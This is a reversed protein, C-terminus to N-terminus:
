KGDRGAKARAVAAVIRRPTMPTENLEAGLPKLADRIANAIAAPPSIAGGEGMGKMGYETFAAPTCMHGIKIDPVEVAGPMLYDAFTTALPQGDDSYPIEEYLATGIGQAIGGVIQGDVIMPNVITGADEVVAYDLIEVKGTEPRVAVVAVQTAYCFVGTAISPEYTAVAEVMPDTEPPLGDQRLYAAHGIEKFTVSGKGGKIEGGEFIVQDIPCQLMHAAIKAMKEKIERCANAVAGGAMVMSRSAFTGMGFPSLSTDGHRISVNAPDIGLEHHAVQALTTELGQGHSQIGTFVILTGDTMLRATASEFGPIVHTGRTVWEGCGHATQETFSAFGIGIYRGDEPGAQQRVRIGDFDILDKARRVSEPYDGSDYLLDTVTRYPMQDPPVMNEMRVQYPERNVAIAIEDIIREITFCAAPRSVGRYPGIPTKNTAVTHTRARYNKLQYPGPINKAVMGTEMFPSNPWHSYAGADVFVEVDVGLLKGDNDAYAKVRHLHERAHIASVFHERRDETWRVPFDLKIGLAAVLIEEPYLINKIGFGGGVDPAIVHVQREEIQLHQAIGARIQHPFQTSSYVVLEDLRDDWYSLVARGEMPVGSHRNMRFEREIVIPASNAVADIDGALVEHEIFANKEWAEHLLVANPALADVADVVAPLEDYKVRCSQAMDEAEGRTPAVCIAIIEGVFRVTDRAINPYLSPRFGPVEPVSRIDKLTDFDSAVFFYGVSTDPAEISVIRAHAMESRVFAIEWTGPINLDSTFQGRGLLYRQDEKRLLSAGIGLKESM